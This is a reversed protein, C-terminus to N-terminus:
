VTDSQSANIAQAVDRATFAAIGLGGVSFMQAFSVVLCYALSHFVNQIPAEAPEQEAVERREDAM